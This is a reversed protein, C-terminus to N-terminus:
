TYIHQTENVLVNHETLNGYVNTLVYYQSFEISIAINGLTYGFLILIEIYLISGRSFCAVLKRMKVKCRM